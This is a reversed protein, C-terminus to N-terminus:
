LNIVTVSYKGSAASRSARKAAVGIIIAFIIILILIVVAILIFKRKKAAREKHDKPRYVTEKYVKGEQGSEDM